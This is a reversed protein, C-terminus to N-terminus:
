KVARPQATNPLPRRYCPPNSGMSHPIRHACAPSPLVVYATPHAPATGAWRNLTPVDGFSSLPILSLPNRHARYPRVWGVGSAGRTRPLWTASNASAESRCPLFPLVVYSTPHAPAKGAWRNLTPVEGSTQCCYSLCRIVTPVIRGYGGAPGGTRTVLYRQKRPSRFSLTFLASCRVGYPPCTSNRGVPEVDACGVFGSLPIFFLPNRHARYPRVWGVGSGGLEPLWASGYTSLYRQQGGSICLVRGAAIFLPYPPCLLVTGV